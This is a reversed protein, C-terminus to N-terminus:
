RRDLLLYSQQFLVPRSALDLRVLRVADSGLSHSCALPHHRHVCRRTHASGHHHLNLPITATLQRSGAIRPTHASILFDLQGKALLCLLNLLIFRTTASQLLDDRLCLIASCNPYLLVHRAFAWDFSINKRAIAQGFISSRPQNTSDSCDLRSDFTHTRLLGPGLARWHILLARDLKVAENLACSSARTHFPHTPPQNDLLM